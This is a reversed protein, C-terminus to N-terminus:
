AIEKATMPAAAIKGKLAKRANLIEPFEKLFWQKIEGYSIIAKGSMKDKERFENFDNMQEKSGHSAVYSEMYDYTLGKLTDTRKSKTQTIVVKYTPFDVKAKVLENYQDSNIKSAKKADAPTLEITRNKFNITM